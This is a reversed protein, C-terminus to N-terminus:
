NRIITIPDLKAAKRSPLYGALSTTLIGFCFGSIYYYINFNMPLHDVSVFVESEFPMLSALFSLLLGVLLGCIAGIVGISVAQTMFIMKVDLNSFGLAKLIAIDRMKEYIMMNLINFIGFGAVFLISMVVFNFIIDQLEAGEFLAANDIQWDSVNVSYKKEFEKSLVPATELNFVKIKLESIYSAPVNLLNQISKLSAYCIEKDIDPIGTKITGVLTANISNGESTTVEIKDGPFLNLKKALSYGMILNNPATEFGNFSGTLLKNKFNFLQDEDLYNVGTITGSINTAGVHYYIPAKVVGSVAKIQSHEKLEEIIKRADKINLAKDKPKPHYLYNYNQPFIKDMVGYKSIEPEIYIRIHPSQDLSMEDIFNNVGKIYGVLFIFVAIGFMVGATAVIAQTLKARLQKHAIYIALKYEKIIKM